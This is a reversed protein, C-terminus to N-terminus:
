PNWILVDAQYIAFCTNETANIFCIKYESNLM